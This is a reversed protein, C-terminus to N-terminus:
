AEDPVETDVRGGTRWYEGRERAMLGEDVLYRRLAAYDPHFLQLTLNVEREDYRIGPEFEQVLRELVVRRKSRKEPISTLRAGSFFSALIRAEEGTWEGELAVDSAAPEKPLSRALTRLEETALRGKVILGAAELGAIERVVKREPVGLGGAIAGPDVLGVAAAGLVALRVPDVAIRVFATPDV